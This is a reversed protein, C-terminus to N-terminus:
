NISKCYAKSEEWVWKLAHNLLFYFQLVIKQYWTLNTEGVKLIAFSILIVSLVIYPSPASIVTRSSSTWTPKSAKDKIVNLAAM